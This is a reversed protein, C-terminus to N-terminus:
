INLRQVLVSMVATILFINMKYLEVGGGGGGSSNVKITFLQSFLQKLELIVFSTSVM